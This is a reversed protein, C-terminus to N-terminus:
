SSFSIDETELIDLIKDAAEEAIEPSDVSSAKLCAWYFRIKQTIEYAEM